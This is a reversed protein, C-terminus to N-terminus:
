ITIKMTVHRFFVDRDRSLDKRECGAEGDDARETEDTGNSLYWFGDHCQSRVVFAEVWSQSPASCAFMDTCIGVIDM